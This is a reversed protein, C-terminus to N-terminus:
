FMVFSSRQRKKSKKCTAMPEEDVEEDQVALEIKHEIRQAPLQSSEQESAAEEKSDQDVAEEEEEEEWDIPEQGQAAWAFQVALTSHAAILCQGHTVSHSATFCRCCHGHNLSAIIM